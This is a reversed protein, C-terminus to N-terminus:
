RRVERLWQWLRHAYPSQGQRVASGTPWPSRTLPQDRLRRKMMEWASPVDAPALEGDQDLLDDGFRLRGLWRAEMQTPRAMLAYLLRQTLKVCRAASLQRLDRSALQKAYASVGTSLARAWSVARVDQKQCQPVWRGAEKRYGVCMGHPASCITEFLAPVFWSRRRLQTAPTFFYAHYATPDAGTSLRSLGFYFGQPPYLGMAQCLKDLALQTSGIWGSDVIAYAFRGLGGQRLYGQLAAYAAAATQRMQAMFFPCAQLLAPMQAAMDATMLADAAFPLALQKLCAHQVTESRLLRALLTRASMRLSPRCLLRLATEMDIHALAHYLTLRSCYMYRCKVGAPALHQAAAHMMWGDRSLFYLTRIGRRRAEQMVWLVFGCLVPAFVAYTYRTLRDQKDPRLDLQPVAACIRRYRMVDDEYRRRKIHWHLVAPTLAVALPKLVYPLTGPGSFGLARFGRHRVRAEQCAFPFARRQYSDQDERYGYLYEQLNAGQLGQAHLRMFLEYDESRGVERKDRYGEELVAARFMVSPHIYPSHALFDHACPAFPVRVHGWAGSADILKCCCGVWAYGPHHRLFDHQRQLRRPDCDDDADMRALYAGRSHAIAANLAAPLGQHVSLRILRIRPDLLAAQEIWRRGKGSTGDDVMILEWEQFTQSVISLVAQFLVQRSVPQYVGMIVSIKVEM